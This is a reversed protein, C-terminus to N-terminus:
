KWALAGLDKLAQPVGTRLADFKPQWGLEDRALAPDVRCSLCEYEAAMRGTLLRARWFPQSKPETELGIYRATLQIFDKWRVPEGAVLYDRDVAGSAAALLMGAAVDQVHVPSIWNNGSGTIEVTGRYKLPDVVRQLFWDGPGYIRGPHLRVGLQAERCLNRLESWVPELARGFGRTSVSDSERVEAESEPGAFLEAAGLWVVQKLGAARSASLIQRVAALTEEGRRRPSRSRGLSTLGTIVLLAEHEPLRDAWVAASAPLPTLAHGGQSAAAAIERALLSGDDTLALRMTPAPKNKGGNSRRIERAFEM